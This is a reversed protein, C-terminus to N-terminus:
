QYEWTEGNTFLIINDNTSDYILLHYAANPAAQTPSAQVWNSAEFHWTDNLITDGGNSAGGVLVFNSNTPDYALGHAMRASPGNSTIQNWTDNNGLDLQWTDALLSGTADRGGFLLIVDNVPNYAIAHHTRATPLTGNTSVQTWDSGDYRWVDNYYTTGDNGGFLYIETNTGTGTYAMQAYTRAPPSTTPTLQTWSDNTTNYTWTEALAADTDDSGGFLLMVNNNDDYVMSMGYVASPQASPTAEIWNTGNFEWTSNEYPWGTGNGGYLVVTGDGYAMAYEGVAAPANTTNIQQWDRAGGPPV